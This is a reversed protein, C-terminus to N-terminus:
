DATRYVLTALVVGDAFHLDDHKSKLKGRFGSEDNALRSRM